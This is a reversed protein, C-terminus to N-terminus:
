ALRFEEAGSHCAQRAPRVRSGPGAGAFRRGSVVPSSIIQRGTDFLEPHQGAYGPSVELGNITSVRACRYRGIASARELAAAAAGNQSAPRASARERSLFHFTWVWSVCLKARSVRRAFGISSELFTRGSIQCACRSAATLSRSLIDRSSVWEPAFNRLLAQSDTRRGWPRQASFIMWSSKAGLVWDGTQQTPPIQVESIPGRRPSSGDAYARLRM